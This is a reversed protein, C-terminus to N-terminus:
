AATALVGGGTPNLNPTLTTSVLKVEVTARGAHDTDRRMSPSPSDLNGNRVEEVAASWDRAEPENVEHVFKVVYDKFEDYGASRYALEVMIEKLGEKFSYYSENMSPGGRALGGPEVGNFWWEEATDGDNSEIREAIATARGKICVEAIYGSGIVIEQFTYLLPYIKTVAEGKNM